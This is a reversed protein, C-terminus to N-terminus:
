KKTKGSLRISNYTTSSNFIASNPSPNQQTERAEMGNKDTREFQQVCLEWQYKVPVSIAYSWKTLFHTNNTM